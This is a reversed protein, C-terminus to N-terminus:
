FVSLSLLDVIVVVIDDILRIALLVWIVRILEDEAVVPCRIKSIVLVQAKKTEALVCYNDISDVAKLHAIVVVGAASSEAMSIVDVIGIAKAISELSVSSDIDIPGIVVLHAIDLVLSRTTGTPGEGGSSGELTGDSDLLVPVWDAKGLLLDDIACECGVGLVLLLEALVITCPSALTAPHAVSPVEHMVLAGHSVSIVRVVGTSGHRLVFTTVILGLGHALDVGILL